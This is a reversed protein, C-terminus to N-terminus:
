VSSIQNEVCYRVGTDVQEDEHVLNDTEVASQKVAFNPDCVDAAYMSSM